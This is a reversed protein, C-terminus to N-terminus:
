GMRKLQTQDISHQLREGSLHRRIEDVVIHGARQRSELTAGGVHPTLLAGPLSRWRDAEPLPEVDYVDLAVDLRGASVAEYLAEMDVLSPRATNVVLTGATMSFIHDRTILGRTEPTEPAHLALVEAWEILEDLGCTNKSLPDDSSIYPDYIRVDANLARCAAIYKRGTRSAGVVGIRAGGIERARSINRAQEWAVGNRMAHDLRHTRRLLSMTLTLSMEAVAPAMAAGAQSIPLGASWFDDSVLARISSPAHVVLELLPALELYAGTLRPFGWATIFINAEAAVAEFADLDVLRSPPVEVVDGFQELAIRSQPPFFAASEATPVSLLIKNKGAPRAAATNGQIVEDNHIM